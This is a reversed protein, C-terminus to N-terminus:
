ALEWDDALIDDANIGISRLMSQDVYIRFENDRVAVGAGWARRRVPSGEKRRAAAWKVGRAAVRFTKDTNWNPTGGDDTICLWTGDSQLCDVDAGKAWAEIVAKHKRYGERDM